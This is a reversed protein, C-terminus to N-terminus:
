KPVAESAARKSPHGRRDSAAERRARSLVTRVGGPTAGCLEAIQESNLGVRALLQASEGVTKGQVLPVALLRMIVDLRAEVRKAADEEM